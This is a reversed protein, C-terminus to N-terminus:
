SLSCLKIFGPVLKLDPGCAHTDMCTYVHMDTPHRCDPTSHDLKFKWTHIVQSFCTAPLNYASVM